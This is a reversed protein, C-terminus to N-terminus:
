KQGAAPYSDFFERVLEKIMTRTDEKKFPGELVRNRTAEDLMSLDGYRTNSELDMEKFVSDVMRALHKRWAPYVGPHERKLYDKILQYKIAGYVDCGELGRIRGSFSL